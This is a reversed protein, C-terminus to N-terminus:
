SQAGTQSKATSPPLVAALTTLELNIAEMEARIDEACIGEEKSTRLVSELREALEALHDIGLVSAAGKLTHALRRATSQDGNALCEALRTMDNAHLEIFRNLWDIFIDTKGGLVTLGRDVNMGPVCSLRALAKEITTDQHAPAGIPAVEKQIVAVIEHEIHRGASDQVNITRRPLWNLLVSYLIIPDVPKAVFDNMGAEECSRRDDAFANATLAVIPKTEWGPLKRITRTAELGDMNPMQMDMLILDYTNAQANRVAELGDVATDVVLGVNRLIEVAVERNIESDEALLLKAGTHNLRLQSEPNEVAPSSMTPMVGYGRQLRATFWFISGLGPISDVGAEGGMLQALRRSIALGLGTGGFMRTTSTDEQEFPRFLREINDTAIGIGTDEVEFRVLLEDEGDELLKGRISISGKETFKLANGVYNLLAQRLRMQDGRLWLPISDVDIKLQLGKAQTAHGFISRINDLISSLSFDNAELLLNGTEIKSMDLIDSIISLLHRGASDIKDLREIQEPTAGSRRMLHNLGIIANMPTRIEHSMNALFMSKAQNAAEAQQRASILETTRLMVQEELHHRHMDLEEGLRKRETIDEKVAVYNNIAGDPQRLPTIIAFEIYESGNKKRNYFMGKWPLGQSLADWMAVFTAPPTKGSHLIRPNQGIVEERSYGTAKLFSDNVYIINANIDTIVISEPSQEVAQSLKRLQDESQKRETIDRASNFFVQKGNLELTRGSIEVNFITGDKRRYCTEFQSRAPKAFQSSIIKTLERDILQADWQSVNMGIIEDHQYGLMNCFSDGAEIVNGEMDLIHIGDSANHLLALNKESEMKLAIGALKRTTIDTMAIHVVHAKGENDQGLSDFQIELRSGDVHLICLECTQKTKHQLLSMFYRHWRDIDEPAFFPALHRNLLKIREEALMTAGTLNIDAILADHSLTVYGIPAFDYLAAYRNRSEELAIKCERLEDNRMKLEFQHAQLETLPKETSQVQADATLIHALESEAFKQPQDPENYKEKL